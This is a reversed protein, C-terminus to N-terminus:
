RFIGSNLLKDSFEDVLPVGESNLDIGTKRCFDELQVYVWDNRVNICAPRGEEEIFEALLRITEQATDENPKLLYQAALVNKEANMLIVMRMLAPFGDRTTGVSVPAYVTDVELTLGNSPKMKLAGTFIENQIVCSEGFSTVPPMHRSETTWTKTKKSYAHYLIDDKEFDVPLEHDAFYEYAAIFQELIKTLQAANKDSIKWPMCNPRSRRFYPWNNKGRFSLGLKKITEREDPFLEDRDGFYCSLCDLYSLVYSSSDNNEAIRLLGSVSQLGPYVGIGYCEGNRGMVSCFVPEKMGPLEICVLDMDWLKNWPELTKIRGMLQYLTKLQDPSPNQQKAM